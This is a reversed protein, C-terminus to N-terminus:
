RAEIDGACALSGDAFHAAEVGTRFDAAIDFCDGSLFEGGVLLRVLAIRM